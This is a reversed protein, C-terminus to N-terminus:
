PVSFGYTASSTFYFNEVATTAIATVNDIIEVGSLACFDIVYLRNIEISGETAIEIPQSPDIINMPSGYEDVIVDQLLIPGISYNEITYDYQVTRQCNIANARLNQCQVTIMQSTIYDYVKGFCAVSLM